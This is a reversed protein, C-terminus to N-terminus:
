CLISKGCSLIDHVWLHSNPPEKWQPYQQIQLFLTGTDPQHKARAAAHELFPSTNALWAIIGNM